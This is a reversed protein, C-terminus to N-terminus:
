SEKPTISVSDCVNRDSSQITRSWIGVRRGPDKKFIYTGLEEWGQQRHFIESRINPEPSQWIFGVVTRYHQFDIESHKFLFTYLERGYGKHSLDPDICIQRGVIFPDTLRTRIAPENKIYLYVEGGFYDIKESSHALVFGIVQKRRRLVYFHEAHRAYRKYQAETYPILFGSNQRQQETLNKRSAKNALATIAPVLDETARDIRLDDWGACYLAAYQYWQKELQDKYFTYWQSQNQKLVLVPMDGQESELPYFLVCIIGNELRIDVADIGFPLPYDIKKINVRDPALTKLERLCREATNISGRYDEVNAGLGFDQQAAYKVASSKLSLLIANITGGDKVVKTLQKIRKPFIRTLNLGTIWVEQKARTFVDVDSPPYGSLLMNDARIWGIAPMSEKFHTLSAIVAAALEKPNDWYKPSREKLLNHFVNLKRQIKENELDETAKPPLPDNHLFAIVPKGIERAYRYELETYSRGGPGISGYRGASIVIYYDCENIVKKILSWLGENAAPFLELGAPIYDHELLAQMVKQRETKLDKYTSSVFVQFRKKM